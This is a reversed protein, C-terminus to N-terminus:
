VLGYLQKILEDDDLQFRESNLKAALPGEQNASAM